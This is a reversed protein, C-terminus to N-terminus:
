MIDTSVKEGNILKKLASTIKNIQEIAVDFVIEGEGLGDATTGSYTERMAYGADSEIEYYSYKLLEGDNMEVLLEFIINEDKRIVSIEESTNHNFRVSMPYTTLYTYFNRFQNIDKKQEAENDDTFVYKGSKSTVTLDNDNFTLIFTDEFMGNGMRAKIYISKVGSQGAEEDAHIYKYFGAQVTNTAALKLLSADDSRLFALKEDSVKVIIESDEGYFYSVIYRYGDKEESIAFSVTEGDRFKASILYAKDEPSLGYEKLAEDTVDTCVTADGSFNCYLYSVIELLYNSDALAPRPYTLFFTASVDSTKGASEVQWIPTGDSTYVFMQDIGVIAENTSSYKGFVAPTVYDELSLLLSKEVGSQMRYVSNRGDVAVYYTTSSTLAKEGVRVTYRKEQGSEDEYTVTYKALCLEETVGYQKMDEDSLNRIPDNDTVSPTCVYAILYAYYTSDYSLKEHGGLRMEYKGNDKDWTKVFSFGGKKNEVEISTVASKDIQPYLSIRGLYIGEGDVAEPIDTEDERDDDKILPAVVAFYVVSIIALCACLIILTIKKKKM